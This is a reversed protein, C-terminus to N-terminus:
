LDILKRYGRLKNRKDYFDEEIIGNAMWGELLRKVADRKLQWRGTIMTVAPRAGNPSKCWPMKNFWALAIASLIERCVTIDPLDGGSVATAKAPGDPDVMLSSRPVIGGLDVKTVKFPFEQGDEGDKVKQIVISGSMAGPERRTEILFDGAGPLVTSGRMSGNKNVHHVGVVICNFRQQIAECAAIFLSMDKQLNEEAGPLVRSVTDVFVATIPVGAKAAIAEVTALLTGVDEPRMFNITQEILYFPTGRASSGRHQEWAQIRFKLSKTGERCLYITAGHQNIRRNWWTSAGATISLALDLAIFTKLSGPPGFIFGMSQENILDNVLWVPDPLAMIQDVDLFQYVKGSATAQAGAKAFEDSYDKPEDPKPNPKAAEEAVEDHWKDMARQWKEWFAAPGRQPTEMDLLESKTKTPDIIRASVLDKYM